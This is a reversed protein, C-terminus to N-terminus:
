RERKFRAMLENICPLMAVIVDKKYTLMDEFTQGGEIDIVFKHFEKPLHQLEKNLANIYVGYDMLQQPLPVSENSYCVDVIKNNKVIKRYIAVVVNKFTGYPVTEGSKNVVERAADRIYGEPYKVDPSVDISHEHEGYRATFLM